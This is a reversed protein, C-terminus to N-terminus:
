SEEEYLARIAKEMPWIRLLGSLPLPRPLPRPDALVWHWLGLIAWPSRSSRTIATVTVRGLLVGHLGRFEDPIAALAPAMPSRQWAPDNTGSAHIWLKFPTPWPVRWSRNEVDKGACFVAAAHPQRVSLVRPLPYDKSQM